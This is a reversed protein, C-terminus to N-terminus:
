VLSTISFLVSHCDLLSLTKRSVTELLKFANLINRWNSLILEVAFLNVNQPTSFKM